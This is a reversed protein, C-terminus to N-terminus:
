RYLEFLFAMREHYGQGGSSGLQQVERWIRSEIVAPGGGELTYDIRLGPIGAGVLGGAAPAFEDRLQELYDEIRSRQMARADVDITFRSSYGEGPGPPIGGSHYLAVVLGDDKETGAKEGPAPSGDAPSRWLPPLWPRAAPGAEGPLRGLGRARLHNVVHDLLTPM